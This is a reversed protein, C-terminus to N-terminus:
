GKQSHPHLTNIYIFYKHYNKVCLVGWYINAAEPAGNRVWLQTRFFAKFVLTNKEGYISVGSM